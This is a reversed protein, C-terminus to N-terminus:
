RLDHGGVIAMKQWPVQLEEGVVSTAAGLKKLTIAQRCCLQAGHWGAHSDRTKSARTSGILPL